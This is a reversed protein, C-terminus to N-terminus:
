EALPAQLASKGASVTRMPTPSCTHQCVEVLFYPMKQFALLGGHHPRPMRLAAHEYVEEGGFSAESYLFANGNHNPLAKM